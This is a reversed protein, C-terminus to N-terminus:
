ALVIRQGINGANRPVVLVSCHAHGIVKATAEGLRVRALGRSGGQGMVVLDANMNKAQNVIEQFLRLSTHVVETECTVGAALAEHEVEDLHKRARSLAAKPILDTNATLETSAHSIMHIVRVRAGSKKAIRLAEHIADTSHESDDSSVLLREIHPLVGPAPAPVTAPAM